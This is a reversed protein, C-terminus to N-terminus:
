GSRLAPEPRRRLRSIAGALGGPLFLVVLVFLAGLLFLPQSLPVRLVGPLSTILSSSALVALRQDFLTYLIGGLLAGWRAGAGGLVVMVLLSLTFSPTTVQPNAGGQVLLYAMGVLTALAGAMVFAILRVVYPRVGLVQVRQANERVAAMMRGAHTRSLWAVVAYVVVAIALATWYL